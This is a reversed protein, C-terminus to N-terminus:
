GAKNSLEHKQITLLHARTQTGMNEKGTEIDSIRTQSGYGLKEAMQKQTLGLAKRTSKMLEPDTMKALILNM